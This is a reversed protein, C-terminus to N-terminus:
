FRIGVPALEAGSFVILWVAFAMAGLGCTVAFVQGLIGSQQDHGAARRVLIWARDMRKLLMLSGLLLGLVFLFASLIGAGPSDLLYQVQSGVWLSLYPIPGWFMLAVVVM